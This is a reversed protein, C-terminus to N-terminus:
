TTDERCGELSCCQGLITSEWRSGYVVKVGEDFVETHLVCGAFRVAYGLDGQGTQSFYVVLGKSFEQVYKHASGGLDSIKVWLYCQM